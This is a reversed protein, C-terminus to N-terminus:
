KESLRNPHIPTDAEKALDTKYNTIAEDFWLWIVAAAAIFLCIASAVMGNELMSAGAGLPPGLGAGYIMSRIIRKNM